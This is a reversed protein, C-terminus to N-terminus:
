STKLKLDILQIFKDIFSAHTSNQPPPHYIGLITLDQNSIRLCWVGYELDREQGSKMLKPKLERKCVLAIGDGKKNLRNLNNFVYLGSNLACCKLWSNDHDTNKLWTETILFADYKLDMIHDHLLDSKNKASYLNCTGTHFNLVNRIPHIGKTLVSRINDINVRNSHGADKTIGERRGRCRM